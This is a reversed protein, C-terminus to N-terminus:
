VSITLGARGFRRMIEDKGDQTSTIPNDDVTLKLLTKLNGISNTIHTLLNDNLFLNTLSTLHDIADPITTLQNCSFSLIYLSTLNAFCYPLMREMGLSNLFLRRTLGNGDVQIRKQSPRVNPAIGDWDDLPLEESWNLQNEYDDPGNWFFGDRTQKLIDIITLRCEPENQCPKSIFQGLLNVSRITNSNDCSVSLHSDHKMSFDKLKTVADLRSLSAVISERSSQFRVVDSSQLLDRFSHTSMQVDSLFSELRHKHSTVALRKLPLSSILAEERADVAARIQNFSEHISEAIDVEKGQLEVEVDNLQTVVSGIEGCVDDLRALLASSAKMATLADDPIDMGTHGIHDKIFCSSCVCVRCNSCYIDLNKTAHKPCLAIRPQASSSPLVDLVIYNVPLSTPRKKTVSRCIPCTISKRREFLDKTCQLCCSHGCPLSKPLHSSDNYHEFCVQCEFVTVSKAAQM